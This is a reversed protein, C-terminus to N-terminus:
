ADSADMRLHISKTKKLNRELISVFEIISM